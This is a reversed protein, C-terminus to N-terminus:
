CGTRASSGSPGYGAHGTRHPLDQILGLDVGCGTARGSRSVTGSRAPWNVAEKSPTNWASPMLIRALGERAGLAFAIQSLIIPVKRRPDKVPQQDDMFVLQAPRQGLVQPVVVGDPRVTGKALEGRGLGAGPRLLDVEGPVPDVRLLDEASERV